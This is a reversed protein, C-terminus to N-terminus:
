RRNGGAAAWIERHEGCSSQEVVVEVEVWRWGDLFLLALFFLSFFFLFIVSPIRFPCSCMVGRGDQRWPSACETGGGVSGALEPAQGAAPTGSPRVNVGHRHSLRFGAAAGM